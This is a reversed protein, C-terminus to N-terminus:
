YLVEMNLRPIMYKLKIMEHLSAGINLHLLGLHLASRLDSFNLCKLIPLLIQWYM